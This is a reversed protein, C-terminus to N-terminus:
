IKRKKENWIKMWGSNLIKIKFTKMKGHSDDIIIIIIHIFDIKKGTNTEFALSDINSYWHTHTHHVVCKEFINKKKDNLLIRTNPQQQQQQQRRKKRIGIGILPDTYKNRLLLRDITNTPFTKFLKENRLLFFLFFTEFKNLSIRKSVWRVCVCVCLSVM